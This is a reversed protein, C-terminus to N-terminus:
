LTVLTGNSVVVAKTVPDVMGWRFAVPFGYVPTRLLRRALRPFMRCTM